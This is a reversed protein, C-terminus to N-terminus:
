GTWAGDLGVGVCAGVRGKGVESYVFRFLHLVFAVCLMCVPALKGARSAVLGTTYLVSAMIDCGAFCTHTRTPVYHPDTGWGSFDHGEGMGANEGGEGRGEQSAGCIATAPLEGLEVPPKKREEAELAAVYAATMAYSAPMLTM